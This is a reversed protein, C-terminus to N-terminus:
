RKGRLSWKIIINEPDFGLKSLVAKIHKRHDGQLVINGEKATGGCALKRKLDSAVHELDLGSGKLGAIVTVKKRFRGLRLSVTIEQKAKKLSECACIDKPLGCIDCIDSM